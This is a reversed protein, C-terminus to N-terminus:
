WQHPQLRQPVLDGGGPEVLPVANGDEAPDSDLVDGDAELSGRAPTFRELGLGPRDAGGAAAHPDPRQVHRVAALGAVRVVLVLQVPERAQVRGRRGPHVVRGDQGAVPVDGRGVLVDEVDGPELLGGVDGRGFAVGERPEQVGPVDVRDAVVDGARVTERVPVVVPLAELAVSAHPDVEQEGGGGDGVPHGPSEDVALLAGRLAARVV